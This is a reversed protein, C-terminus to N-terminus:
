GWPRTPWAVPSSQTDMARPSGAYGNQM